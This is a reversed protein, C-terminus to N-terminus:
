MEQEYVAPDISHYWSPLGDKKEDEGYVDLDYDFFLEEGNQIDKMALFITIQDDVFDQARNWTPKYKMTKKDFSFPADLPLLNPAMGIPPHNICYGLCLPNERLVAHIEDSPTGDILSGNDRSYTYQGILVTMCLYLTSFLVSFSISFSLVALCWVNIWIMDPMFIEARCKVLQVKLIRLDGYNVAMFVCCDGLPPMVMLFYAVDQAKPTQPYAVIFMRCEFYRFYLIVFLEFIYSNTGANPISSDTVKLTWDNWPWKIDNQLCIFVNDIQDKVFRTPDNHECKMRVMLNVLCQAKAELKRIAMNSVVFM